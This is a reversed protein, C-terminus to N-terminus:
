ARGIDDGMHRGYLASEADVRRAPIDGHGRLTALGDRMNQIERRYTDQATRRIELTGADPTAMSRTHATGTDRQADIVNLRDPAYDRTGSPAGDGTTISVRVTGDDTVNGTHLVTGTNGDDLCEVRARATVVTGAHDTPADYEGETDYDCDLCVNGLEADAGIDGCRICRADMPATTPPTATQQLAALAPAKDTARIRYRDAPLYQCTLADYAVYTAGDQIRAGTELLSVYGRYHLEGTHTDTIEVWM